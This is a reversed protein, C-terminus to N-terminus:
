VQSETIGGADVSLQGGDGIDGGEGATAAAATVAAAVATAAGESHHRARGM